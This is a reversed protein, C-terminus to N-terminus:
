SPLEKWIYLFGTGKIMIDKLLSIFWRAPMIASLWQLLVPMNEIPFIFGSLIITPLMLALMSIFMAMQQSTAVTSIFIGLSLALSVYVDTALLLLILSGTVPVGFVYYGLLIIVLADMFSFFYLPDSEWPHYSGPRLPSVLLTEM